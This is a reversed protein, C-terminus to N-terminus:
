RNLLYNVRFLVSTSTDFVGIDSLGIGGAVVMGGIYPSPEILAIKLSSSARAATIAAAIGAPTASYIIIDYTTGSQHTISLSFSLLLFIRIPM